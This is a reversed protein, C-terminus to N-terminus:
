GKKWAGPKKPDKDASVVLVGDCQSLLQQGADSLSRTLVLAPKGNKLEGALHTELHSDNFGYGIILYRTARDIEDNAKERHVDFPRDYGTRYKNLGPTIILRPLSLPLLCCIPENGHLYWDLSGHPKLLKVHKAYTLHISGGRGKLKRIGRCLSYRSERLNLVGWHQGVFLTDVRLGANETAVELLRDYNTTLVPIGTNPKLMHALLRTFRLIRKRTVVQELVKREAELILSATREVILAELEHSPPKERLASELDVGTSLLQEILGWEELLDGDANKPIEMELHKRLDEMGPIGEAVSLGTGVVTVLGDTLHEQLRKKLSDTEM